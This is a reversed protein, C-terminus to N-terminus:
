STSRTPRARCRGCRRAITARATSSPRARSWAGSTRPSFHYNSGLSADNTKVRDRQDNFELTGPRAGAGAHERGAPPLTSRLYGYQESGFVEVSDNAHYQFSGTGIHDVDDLEDGYDVSFEVPAEYGASLEPRRRSGRLRACRAPLRFLVDDQKDEVSRFVNDDYEVKAARSFELDAALVPLAPCVV